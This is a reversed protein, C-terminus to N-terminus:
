QRPVAKNSPEADAEAGGGDDQDKEDGRGQWQPVCFLRVLSRALVVAGSM